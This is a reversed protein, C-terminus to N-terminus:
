THAAKRKTAEKDALIRMVHSRHSRMIEALENDSRGELGTKVPAPELGGGNAIIMAALNRARARSPM